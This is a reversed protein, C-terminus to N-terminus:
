AAPPTLRGPSTSLGRDLPSGSGAAALGARAIAADRDMAAILSAVSPFREEPRIWDFFTVIVAEGYLDGSFDFVHVELLPAGDDFTPRRGYSAVGAHVTGRVAITVAYIGHRLRCDAPLAINATPFGLERGRRDGTIVEGDVFWRYGLLRNAAAIDGAVLADRIVSSSLLSGDADLVADMVSVDFGRRSGEEVLFAPTGGRGKGFHFDYGVVVARAGLRGLLITEVFTAATLASFARDFPLVIMGDVGLAALLRAKAALPTLRFVPQDPRFVTRPHPEFTLVVSKVGRRGAEGTAVELLAAHGRHVGDFNGIAVVGGGFNGPFDAISWAILPQNSATRDPPM